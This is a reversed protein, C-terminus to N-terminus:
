TGLPTALVAVVSTDSAATAGALTKATVIVDDGSQTALLIGGATGGVSQYIARLDPISATSGTVGRIKAALGVFTKVGAVLSGVM